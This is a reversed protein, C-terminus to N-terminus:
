RSIECRPAHQQSLPAPVFFGKADVGVVDGAAVGDAAVAGGEDGGISLNKGLAIGAREGGSAEASHEAYNAGGDLLPFLNVDKSGFGAGVELAGAEGRPLELLVADGSRKDGVVHDAV